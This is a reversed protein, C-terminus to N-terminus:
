WGTQSEDLVRLLRIATEVKRHDLRAALATLQHRPDDPDMQVVGTINASQVEDDALEGAAMLLNLHSVGLARAIRRRTDANPFKNIGREISSLSGQTIGVQEALVQQQIGLSERRARIYAGLGYNM